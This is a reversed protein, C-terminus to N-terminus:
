FLFFFFFFFFFLFFFFFFSFLFFFLYFIILRCCLVLRFSLIPGYVFSKRDQGFLTRATDMKRRQLPTAESQGVPRAPTHPSCMGGTCRGALSPSRAAPPLDSSCVDSSWDSISM